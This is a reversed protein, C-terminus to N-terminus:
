GAVALDKSKVGFEALRLVKTTQGPMQVGYRYQIEVVKLLKGGANCMANGVGPAVRGSVLDSMLASMLNAFDAGTQIGKAAVLESRPKGTRITRRKTQAM